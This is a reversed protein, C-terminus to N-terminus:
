WRRPRYKVIGQESDEEAKWWLWYNRIYLAIYAAALAFMAWDRRYYCVVLVFSGFAQLVYGSRNREGVMASGVFCCVVGLWEM